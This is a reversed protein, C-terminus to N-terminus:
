NLNRKPISILISIILLKYNLCNLHNNPIKEKGIVEFIMNYTSIHEYKSLNKGLIIHITQHLCNSTFHLFTKEKLLAMLKNAYNINDM